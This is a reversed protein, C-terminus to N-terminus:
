WKRRSRSRPISIASANKPKTACGSATTAFMKPWARRARELSKLKKRMAQGQASEPNVPPKGAFKPPIEIMAKNILVAVPNLDSAYRRLGWGSRKWRCRVAALSPTM